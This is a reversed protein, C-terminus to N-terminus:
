YIVASAVLSSDARKSTDASSAPIDEFLDGQPEKPSKPITGQLSKVFSSLQAIQKPSFNDKWAIMGKDPWGYKISTYINTLAGGHLWYKDTLNPGTAGGGDDVHCVACNKTYLEKGVNIDDAGLMKVNNEDIDNANKALYAEHEAVAEAWAINFEEEMLPASHFVHYRLLYVAAFVICAVFAATFWPPIVNDLERIGNYDHGTDLAAEQEKSGFNNIKRWWKLLSFERSVKREDIATKAVEFASRNLLRMTGISFYLIVLLELIITIFLILIGADTTSTKSATEAMVAEAEQAQVQGAAVQVLMFILVKIATGTKEKEAYIKVASMFVKGMIFVPITLIVAIWLMYTHSSSIEYKVPGREQSFSLITIVSCLLTATFKYSLEKM